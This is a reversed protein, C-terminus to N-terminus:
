LAAAEAEQRPVKALFSKIRPMIQDVQWQTTVHDYGPLTFMTANALAQVCEKMPALRPDLEGVYLLCPMRMSPLVEATSVRDQTLARLADLDSKLLRERMTPTLLKGLFQEMIAIFADLSQPMRDRYPQMSEPYPHAAGIILSSFRAPAYKALGFAIWGGMSYGCYDAKPLNLDDLVSVVDSARISLDYAAPDHPKDSLGHGRGDVLILQYDSKLAEVYGREIWDPGSGFTGHHLILPRGNGVAQYHIHVGQNNAFPM